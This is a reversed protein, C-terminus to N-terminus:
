SSYLTVRDKGPLTRLAGFLKVDEYSSLKNQRSMAEKRGEEFVATLSAFKQCWPSFSAQDSPSLTM